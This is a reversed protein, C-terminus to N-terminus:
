QGLRNWFGEFVQTSLVFGLAVNVAVGITFAYFPRAGVSVFERLKTSLGISLFAFTFAWTRLAQLPGVLGPLVDKKYAAYDYGKSVLTILASAVLFGLVFKPFRRWIEGADSSGRVPTREWRTTAILSLV